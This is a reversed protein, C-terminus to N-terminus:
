ERYPKAHGAQLLAAALSEGDTSIMGLLRGFDDRRCAYVVVPIPGPLRAELWAATFAKAREGAARTAGSREPTDIALLRIREPVPWPRGDPGVWVGVTAQVTDGDIVRDVSLLVATWCVLLLCVARSGTM